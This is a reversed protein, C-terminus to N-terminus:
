LSHRILRLVSRSGSRLEDLEDEVKEIARKLTKRTQKWADTTKERLMGRCHKMKRSRLFYLMGVGLAMYYTFKSGIKM